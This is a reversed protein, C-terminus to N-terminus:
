LRFLIFSGLLIFVVPSIYRSCRGIWKAVAPLSTIMYAILCLLLTCVLYVASAFLMAETQYASFLPIYVALNDAGNAVTLMTVAGYSSTLSAAEEEEKRFLSIVGIAIPVLGLLRIYREDFLRLGRSVLVSFLIILTIGTLQGATISIVDRRGKVGAYLLMLILIDDINTAAFSLVASLLAEAISM